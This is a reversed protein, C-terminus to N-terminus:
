QRGNNKMPDFSLTSHEISKDDAQLQGNLQQQHVIQAQNLPTGTEGDTPNFISAKPSQDNTKVPM